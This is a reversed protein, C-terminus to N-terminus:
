RVGRTSCKWRREGKQHRGPAWTTSTQFAHEPTSTVRPLLRPHVRAQLVLAFGVETGGDPPIKGQKMGCPDSGRTVFESRHPPSGALSRGTQPPAESLSLAGGRPPRPGGLAAGGM